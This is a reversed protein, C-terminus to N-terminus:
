KPEQGYVEKVLSYYSRQAEDEAEDLADLRRIAESDLVYDVPAGLPSGYRDLEGSLAERAKRWANYREELQTMEDATPM